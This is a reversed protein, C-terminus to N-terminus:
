GEEEQQELVAWGQDTLVYVASLLPYFIAKVYGAEELKTLSEEVSDRNRNLTRAVTVPPAGPGRGGESMPQGSEHRAVARLADIQSARPKV